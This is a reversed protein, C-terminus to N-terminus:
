HSERPRGHATRHATANIGLRLRTRRDERGAEPRDSEVPPEGQENAGRGADRERPHSRRLFLVHIKSRSITQLVRELCRLPSPHGPGRISIAPAQLVLRRLPSPPWAERLWRQWGPHHGTIFNWIKWEDLPTPRHILDNLVAYATGHLLTDRLIRLPRM